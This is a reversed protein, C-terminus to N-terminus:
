LGLHRSTSTSLIATGRKWYLLAMKPSKWRCQQMVEEISAGNNLAETTHGRRLSHTAYRRPDLGAQNLRRKLRSWIASYGVGRDTLTLMGSVAPFLPGITRGLRKMEELWAIAAVVPCTAENMGWTIFVMEPHGSDNTKSRILRVLIGAPRMELDAIAITGLEGARFGGAYQFLFLAKDRRAMFDNQRDFHDCLVAIEDTVLANRPSAQHGSEAQERGIGRLLRRVKRDKAPNAFGHREHDWGIAALIRAISKAALGAARKETVFLRLAETTTPREPFGRRGCFESFGFLYSRYSKVTSPSLNRNACQQAIQDLNSLSLSAVEARKRQHDKSRQAAAGNAPRCSSLNKNAM